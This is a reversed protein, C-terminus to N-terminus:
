CSGFHVQFAESLLWVNLGAPDDLVRPSNFVVVKPRKGLLARATGAISRLVADRPAPAVFGCACTLKVTLLGLIKLPSNM